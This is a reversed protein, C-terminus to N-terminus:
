NSVRALLALVDEVLAKAAVALRHDHLTGPTTLAYARTSSLVEVYVYSPNETAFKAVGFFQIDAHNRRVRYRRGDVELYGGMALLTAHVRVALATTEAFTM